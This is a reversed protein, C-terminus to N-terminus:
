RLLDLLSTQLITESALLSAQFTSQLLSFNTAAEAYDLDFVDSLLRQIQVIEDGLREEIIEASQVRIGVEARIGVMGDGNQKLRESAHTIAQSDDALLADRLDILATILGTTRVPRVDDGTLTAGPNAVTKAMGLDSAASSANLSTVSLDSGGASGDVLEIGNGTTALQATLLGGTNGPHTNILDLIDQVTNASSIDVDFTVGDRRQVRFDDGTVSSVGLGNNLESLRVSAPMSRVGLDTATSGGSEGITLSVGSLANLVNVGTGAEGIEARVYLGAGNIANLADEVTAAASLDITQSDSGNTIILGSAQDIGAGGHLDALPTLLSVVRDVDAGVLTPGAGAANYIGLSRATTGGSVDTVTINAGAKALQLGNGAANISVTIGAPGHAQILDIVDQVDNAGSLDVTATSTGDSVVISGLSVGSGLNLDRLLTTTTLQPDLDSTGQVQPALAGFVDAGAVNSAFTRNLDVTSVIQGTDGRYYVGGGVNEFPPADTDHGGFLYRGAFKRNGVAAVEDILAEVVQAAAVRAETTAMSGVNQSALTQAENVLDNLNTLAVDTASLFSNASQVNQQAQEKRELLGQLSTTMAAGFPDESPLNIKQGSALKIQARLMERQNKSVNDLVIHTTLATSVRGSSIPVVAM